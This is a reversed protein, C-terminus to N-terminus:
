ENPVTSQIISANFIQAISPGLSNAYHKILHGPLDDPGASAKSKTAQLLQIVESESPLQIQFSADITAQMPILCGTSTSDHVISAFHDNLLVPDMTTTQGKSATFTVERIFKWIKNHDNEKLIDTGFHM